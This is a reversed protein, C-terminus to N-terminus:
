CNGHGPNQRPSRYPTCISGVRRTCGDLHGLVREGKLEWELCGFEPGEGIVASDPLKPAERKQEVGKERAPRVQLRTPAAM